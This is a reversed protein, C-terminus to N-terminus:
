DVSLLKYKNSDKKLLYGHLNLTNLLNYFDDGVGGNQAAQKLETITFESRSELEAIRQLM